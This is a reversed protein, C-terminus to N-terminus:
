TDNGFYLSSYPPVLTKFPGIFPKTYEILLEQATNQKVAKQM